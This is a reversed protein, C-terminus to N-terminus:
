DINEKRNRSSTKPRRHFISDLIIKHFTHKQISRLNLEGYRLLTAVQRIQTVYADITETNEDDGHM